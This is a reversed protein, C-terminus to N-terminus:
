RWRLRQGIFWAAVLCAGIVGINILVAVTLQWIM